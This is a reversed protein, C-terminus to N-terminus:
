GRALQSCDRAVVADAAHDPAQSVAPRDPREAQTAGLGDLLPPRATRTM